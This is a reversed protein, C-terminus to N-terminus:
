WRDDHAGAGASVLPAVAHSPLLQVRATAAARAGLVVPVLATQQRRLLPWAARAVEEEVSADVEGGGARCCTRRVIQVRSM